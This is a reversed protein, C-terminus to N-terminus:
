MYPTIKIFKMCKGVHKEQLADIEKQFKHPNLFWERVKKKHAVM